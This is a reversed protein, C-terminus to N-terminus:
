PVTDRVQKMNEIIVNRLRDRNGVGVFSNHPTLIVNQMDWLPSGEKLPEEEFVDLVAGGLHPLVEILANTDILAGRAINVLIATSKLLYLRDANILHYTKETLPLTLVIIDAEPLVEDLADVTVIRQYREDSRPILDVGIVKCGFAAFRAACEGGVSGCGIICVTGGNLELLGRHKEWKHQKQNEYFFQRQKYLELVGAVAFEAMPISYVDRANHIEIGQAKVYNMPVRDFGASTLQIYKLNIFKEIPHHLFLGNCVVAEVWTYECPLPEKEQEHFVVQFGMQELQGINSQADTWAGTLLLNMGHM